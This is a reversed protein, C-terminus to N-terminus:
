ASTVAKRAKNRAIGHILFRIISTRPKSCLKCSACTVGARTQAPCTVVRKGNIITGEVIDDSTICVDWGQDIADFADEVSEVSANLMYNDPILQRDIRPWSHTYSFLPVGAEDCVDAIANMYDYDIEGVSDVLDGVVRDRFLPTGKLITVAEDHTYTKSYKKAM